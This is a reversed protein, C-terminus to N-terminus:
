YVESARFSYKDTHLKFARYGGGEMISSLTLRSDRIKSSGIFTFGTNFAIEPLIQASPGILVKEGQILPLLDIIQSFTNFVLASGSVILHQVDTLEEVSYVPIIQSTQKPSFSDDLIKLKFGRKVLFKSIPHINGIMGVTASLNSHFLETVDKYDGSTLPLNAQSYANLAAVGISRFVGLKSNCFEILESLSKEYLYKTSLYENHSEKETRKDLLTYAVGTSGNSLLLGTYRIGVVVKKVQYDDISKGLAISNEAINALASNM